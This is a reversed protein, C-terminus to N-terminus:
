PEVLVGTVPIGLLSILLSTFKIQPGGVETYVQRKEAGLNEREERELGNGKVTRQNSL